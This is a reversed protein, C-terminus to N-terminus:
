PKGPLVHFRDSLLLPTNPPAYASLLASFSNSHSPKPTASSPVPAFPIAPFIFTSFHYFLAQCIFLATTTYALQGCPCCWLQFSIGLPKFFTKFVQFFYKVFSHLQSLTIQSVALAAPSQVKYISYRSLRVLFVKSM